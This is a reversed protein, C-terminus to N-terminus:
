QPPRRLEVLIAATTLALAAHNELAQRWNKQPMHEALLRALTLTLVTGALGLEGDRMILGYVRDELAKARDVIEDRPIM